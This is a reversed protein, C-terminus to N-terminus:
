SSAQQRKATLAFEVNRGNKDTKKIFGHYHYKWLMLEAMLASDVDVTVRVNEELLFISSLYRRCLYKMLAASLHTHSLEISKSVTGHFHVNHQIIWVSCTVRDM